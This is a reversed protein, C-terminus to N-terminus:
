RRKPYSKQISIPIVRTLKYRGKALALAVGRKSQKLIYVTELYSKELVDVLLLAERECRKLPEWRPISCLEHVLCHKSKSLKQKSELMNKVSHTQM